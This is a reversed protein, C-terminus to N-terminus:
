RPRQTEIFVLSQDRRDSTPARPKESRGVAMEHLLNQAALPQAKGDRLDMFDDLHIALRGTFRPLEFKKHLAYLFLTVIEPLLSAIYIFCEAFEILDFFGTDLTKGLKAHIGLPNKSNSTQIGISHSATEFM